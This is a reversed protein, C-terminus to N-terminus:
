SKWLQNVSIATILTVLIQKYQPKSPGQYWLRQGGGLMLTGSAPFALLRSPHANPPWRAPSDCTDPTLPLRLTGWPEM